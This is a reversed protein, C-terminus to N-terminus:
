SRHDLLCTLLLGATDRGGMVWPDGPVEVAPSLPVSRNALSLAVSAVALAAAASWLVWALWVVTRQRMQVAGPNRSAGVRSLNSGHGSLAAIGLLQALPSHAHHELVLILM